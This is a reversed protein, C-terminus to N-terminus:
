GASGAQVKLKEIRAKSLDAVRDRLHQARAILWELDESSADYQDSYRAEVYARKLLEFRRRDFRNERPWAEVLGTNM